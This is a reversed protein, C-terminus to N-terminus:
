GRLFGHHHRTRVGSIEQRALVVSKPEYGLSFVRDHFGRERNSSISSM